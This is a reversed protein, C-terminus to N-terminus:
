IYGSALRLRLVNKESDKSKGGLRLHDLRSPPGLFRRLLQIAPCKNGIEVDGVICCATPLDNVTILLVTPSHIYTWWGRCVQLPSGVRSNHTDRHRPLPESFKVWGQSWVNQIPSRQMYSCELWAGPRCGWLPLVTKWQCGLTYTHTHTNQKTKKKRGLFARFKLLLSVIDKVDDISHVCFLADNVQSNM